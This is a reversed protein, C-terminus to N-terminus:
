NPLKLDAVVPRHDSGPAVIVRYDLVEIDPTVFVHDIVFPLGWTPRTAAHRRRIARRCDIMGRAAALYAPAPFFTNYDGMAIVPTCSRQILRQLHVAERFRYHETTPFAIPPWGRLYSLHINVVAFRVGHISVESWTAYPERSGIRLARPPAIQGHRVITMNGLLRSDIRWLPVFDWAGPCIQAVHSPRVFGSREGEDAVEQLCIVDAPHRRITEQAERWRRGLYVNYTMVRINFSQEHVM